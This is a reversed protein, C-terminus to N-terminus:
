FLDDDNQLLSINKIM